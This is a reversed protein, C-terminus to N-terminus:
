GRVHPLRRRRAIDDLVHQERRDAEARQAAEREAILQEVAEAATRAAAVLSRVEASREAAAALDAAAAQREARSVERRAASLEVFQHADQWTETAQHDKQMAADLSRIKDAIASEATLCAALAYRAQEVARRRISLLVQMPERPM